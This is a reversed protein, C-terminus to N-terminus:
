ERAAASAGTGLRLPKLRVARQEHLGLGQPLQDWGPYVPDTFDSFVFSMTGNAPASPLQSAPTPQAAVMKPDIRAVDDKGAEKARKLGLPSSPDFKPTVPGQREEARVLSPASLALALVAASATPILRHRVGLSM